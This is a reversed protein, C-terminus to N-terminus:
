NVVAQKRLASLLTEPTHRGFPDLGLLAIAADDFLGRSRDEQSIEHILQLLIGKEGRLALGNLAEARVFSSEDRTRRWLAERIEAGDITTEHGIGTTAWDRVEENSDDMLALLTKVAGASTAGNLSFAVGRRVRDNPHAGLAVLDPDGRRNGLHGLAYIAGLRVDFDPDHRLLEILADCCEEPFTRDAGLEGLILAALKRRRSDDSAILTLAAELVDRTGRAHLVSLAPDGPEGLERDLAEEALAAEILEEVTRPDLLLREHGTTM